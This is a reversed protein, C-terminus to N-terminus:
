ASSRWEVQPAEPTFAPLSPNPPDPDQASEAEAEGSDDAAVATEDEAETEDGLTAIHDIDLHRRLRAVHADVTEDLFTALHQEDDLADYLDGVLDHAFEQDEVEDWIVRELRGFVENRRRAVAEKAKKEREVRFERDHRETERLARDQEFVLKAELALSQRCSRAVQAFAGALKVAEENTKAGIARNQLDQAFELSLSALRALVRGHRTEAIDVDAVM